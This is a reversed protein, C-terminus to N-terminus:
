SFTHYDTVRLTQITGPDWVVNAASSSTAQVMITHTGAALAIDNEFNFTEVYVNATAASLTFGYPGGQVAGDVLIRVYLFNYASTNKNYAGLSGSIRVNDAGTTLNISLGTVTQFGTNGVATNGGIVQNAQYSAVPATGSIVNFANSAAST